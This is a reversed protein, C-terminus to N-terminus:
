NEPYNVKRTSARTVRYTTKGDSVTVHAGIGFAVERAARAAKADLKDHNNLEVQVTRGIAANTVSVNIM